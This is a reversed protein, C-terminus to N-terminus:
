GFSRWRRNVLMGVVGFGVAYWAGCRRDYTPAHRKGLDGPVGTSRIAHPQDRDGSTKLSM